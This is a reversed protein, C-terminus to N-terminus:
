GALQDLSNHLAARHEYASLSGALDFTETAVAGAEAITPDRRASACGSLTGMEAGDLGSVAAVSTSLSLVFRHDRFM